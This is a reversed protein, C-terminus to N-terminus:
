NKVGSNCSDKLQQIRPRVAIKLVSDYLAMIAPDCDSLEREIKTETIAFELQEALRQGRTTLQDIKIKIDDRARIAQAQNYLDIAGVLDNRVTASRALRMLSDISKGQRAGEESAEEKNIWGTTEVNESNTFIIFAFGNSDKLVPVTERTTIKAERPSDFSATRYFKVGYDKSGFIRISDTSAVSLQKNKANGSFYYTALGTLACAVLAILIYATGPGSSATQQRPRAAEAEAQKFKKFLTDNASQLEGIRQNLKRNKEGFEQKITDNERVLKELDETSQKAISNHKQIEEFLEKGNKYRNAPDKELCKMIVKELWDPYDKKWPTNYVKEFAAKRKPEIPQPQSNKHHNMMEFEAMTSSLQKNVPFPVDGALAEYMLIGFSYVDAQETCTVEDDWKEPAKYEIAGGKRTSSKVQSGQVIALGFDLLVYRGDRSRRINKSHIDNHIVKYKEVLERECEKSVYGSNDVCRDTDPDICYAYISYHCYNLADSIDLVLKLVESFPLFRQSEKLFELVDKGEIFDMEFFASPPLLRPPTINVINKHGGNGLRLLTACEDLFKKYLPDTDKYIHQKLVKVARIYGLVKHKVKMVHAYAGDESRWMMEYEEDFTKKKEEM